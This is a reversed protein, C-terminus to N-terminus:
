GLLEVKGSKKDDCLVHHNCPIVSTSDLHSKERVGFCIECDRLCYQKAERESIAVGEARLKLEFGRSVAIVIVSM